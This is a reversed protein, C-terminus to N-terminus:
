GNAPKRKAEWKLYEADMVRVILVFDKLVDDELGHFSGYQM